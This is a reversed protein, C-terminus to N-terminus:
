IDKMTKYFQRVDILTPEKFNIIAKGNQLNSAAKELKLQSSPTGLFGSLSKVDKSKINLCIPIKIQSSFDFDSRKFDEIGQTMLIIVVGKSRIVRLLDELIKRANKNKLYVHAEDIIIIYRLPKISSPYTPSTDESKSFQQLLYKLILFVTLQRTTDALTIPLNLYVSNDFLKSTSNEKRNFLGGALKSITSLLIDPPLKQDDYYTELKELVDKLEPHRSNPLGKFSDILIKKFNHEQKAGIKSEIAKVSDVFSQIQFRQERENTLSIYELPNFDFDDNLLDIFNTNTSDLFEKLSDPNGEGKYDFFIYNLEQNTNNRIQFVIDKILQTKGSGTMGAVAIHHSDFEELDNLRITIDKDEQNIGLIFEVIDEYLPFDIEEIVSLSRPSDTPKILSLSTESLKAIFEIHEGKTTDLSRIKEKLKILGDNLHIKYYKSFVEDSTSEQYLQDLLAKYVPYYSKGNQSTGFIAKIDRFEKGDSPIFVIDDVNFKKGLSLSYAFAIRSIIGDYKFNFLITLENVLEDLQKSIKIRMHRSTDKKM